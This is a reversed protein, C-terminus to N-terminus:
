LDSVSIVRNVVITVEQTFNNRLNNVQLQHENATVIAVM